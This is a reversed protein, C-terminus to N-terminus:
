RPSIACVKEMAVYAEDQASALFGLREWFHRAENGVAVHCRVTRRAADAEDLLTRVLATGLGSRRFTPLVAIDVIRIDTDTRDVWLRGCPEGAVTVVLHSAGPYCANYHRSQAESQMRLLADLQEAPLGLAVLDPRTSAYLSLLFAGDDPLRVPRTSVEGVM